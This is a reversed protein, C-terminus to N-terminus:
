RNCNFRALASEFLSSASTNDPTYVKWAFVREGCTWAAAGGFPLIPTATTTISTYVVNMNRVLKVEPTGVPTDVGDTLILDLLFQPDAAGPSFQWMLQIVLSGSYTAMLGTQYSSPTGQNSTVASVDYFAMDAPHGICFQYECFLGKLDAPTPSPYPTPIPVSPSTPIAALTAAVAQNIRINPDPTARGCATVILSLALLLFRYRM